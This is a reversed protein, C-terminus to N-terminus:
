RPVKGQPPAPAKVPVLRAQGPPVIQVSFFLDGDAATVTGNLLVRKQPDYIRIQKTGPQVICDWSVEGPYLVHLKGQHVEGRIVSAGQVIIPINIDNRFGMWAARGVVPWATLVLFILLIAPLTSFGWLRRLM